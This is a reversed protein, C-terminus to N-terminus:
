INFLPFMLVHSLEVHLIANDLGKQFQSTINNEDRNQTKLIKDGLFRIM